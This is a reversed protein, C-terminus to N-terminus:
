GSIPAKEGSWVNQYAGTVVGNKDISIQLFMYANDEFIESALSFLAIVIGSRYCLWRSNILVNKDKRKIKRADIAITDASVQVTM